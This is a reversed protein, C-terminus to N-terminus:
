QAALREEIFHKHRNLEAAVAEELEASTLQETYTKEVLGVQGRTGLTYTHAGLTIEIGALFDFRGVERHNFTDYYVVAGIHATQRTLLEKMALSALPISEASFDDMVLRLTCKEYFRAFKQCGEAFRHFLPLVSQEFLVELQEPTKGEGPNHALRHELLALEQDFDNLGGIAEGKAARIMQELSGALQEAVFTVFMEILGSDAQRLASLYDPQDELRLIVPPYGFRILILNMLLRAMRGNGRDFPHIRAFRYHFEAALSIPDVHRSESKERYWNLLKEMRAPTEEPAVFWFLDGTATVGHNPQTKYRGMAGKEKDASEKPGQPSYSDPPCFLLAHLSLIFRETLPESGAAQDLVRQVAKNHGEMELHDERPKGKAPLGYFLLAQTEGYTLTNGRLRNSHYNWDLRFKRWIKQEQEVNLPRLDDLEEKLLLAKRVPEM